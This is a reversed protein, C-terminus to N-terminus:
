GMLFRYPFITYTLFYIYFGLEGNQNEANMAGADKETTETM